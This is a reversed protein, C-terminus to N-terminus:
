YDNYVDNDDNLGNLINSNCFSGNRSCNTLKWSQIIKFNHKKIFLSIAFLVHLGKALIKCKLIRPKPKVYLVYLSNHM